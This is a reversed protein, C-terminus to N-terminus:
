GKRPPSVLWACAHRSMALFSSAQGTAEEEGQKKIDGFGAAAKLVHGKAPPSPFCAAPYLQWTLPLPAALCRPALRQEASVGPGGEACGAAGPPAEGLVESGGCGASSQVTIGPSPRM